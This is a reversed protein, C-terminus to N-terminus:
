EVVMKVTESIGNSAAVIPNGSGDSVFDCSANWVWAEHTGLGFSRITPFLAQNMGRHGDPCPNHWHFCGSSLNSQALKRMESYSLAADLLIIGNM